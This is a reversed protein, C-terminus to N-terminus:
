DIQSQTPTSPPNRYENEEKQDRITFNIDTKIHHELVKYAQDLTM